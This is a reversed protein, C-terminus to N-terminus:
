RIRNSNIRLLTRERRWMKVKHTHTHKLYLTKCDDNFYIFFSTFPFWIDCFFRDRADYLIDRSMLLRARDWPDRTHTQPPSTIRALHLGNMQSEYFVMWIENLRLSMDDHKWALDNEWEWREAPSFFTSMSLVYWFFARRFNIANPNKEAIFNRSNKSTLQM